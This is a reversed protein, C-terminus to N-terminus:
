PGDGERDVEEAGGAASREALTRRLREWDSSSRRLTRRVDPPIHDIIREVHAIRDELVPHSLYPTELVGPPRPRHSLMTRFFSVLGEPDWGSEVMLNVALSDAELEVARSYNATHLSRSIDGGGTTAIGLRARRLDELQRVAHGATVHVIEHSLIGAVESLDAAEDLLGRYVYVTGGAVAFANVAPRDPVRFAFRLDPRGAHGALQRGLRDVADQVRPESVLPFAQDLAAVIPRGLETEEAATFEHPPPAAWVCASAALPLIVLRRPGTM